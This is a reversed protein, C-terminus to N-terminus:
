WTSAWTSRSPSGCGTSRSRGSFADKDSDPSGMMFEGAPILVMELKVGNGLDVTVEKPPEKTKGGVSNSEEVTAPTNNNTLGALCGNIFFTGEAKPKDQGFAVSGVCVVALFVLRTAM